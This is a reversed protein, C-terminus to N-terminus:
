DRRVPDFHGYSAGLAKQRPNKERQCDRLSTEALNKFYDTEYREHIKEFEQTTSEKNVSFTITREHNHWTPNSFHKEM